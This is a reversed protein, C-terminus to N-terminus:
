DCLPHLVPELDLPAIDPRLVEVLHISLASRIGKLQLQRSVILAIQPFGGVPERAVIPVLSRHDVEGPRRRPKCRKWRHCMLQQGVPYERANAHNLGARREAYEVAVGAGDISVEIVPRLSRSAIWRGM